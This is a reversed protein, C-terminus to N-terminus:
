YTLRSSANVTIHWTRRNVTGTFTGSGTADSFRGTGKRVALNGSFRAVTGVSQPYGLVNVTLSGGGNPFFTVSGTTKAANSIDFRAKVSGALTGTATGREKLINGALARVKGVLAPDREAIAQWEEPSADGLLDEMRCELERVDYFHAALEILEWSRAVTEAEPQVGGRAGDMWRDM